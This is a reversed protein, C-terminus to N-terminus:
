WWGRTLWMYSQVEDFLRTSYNRTLAYARQSFRSAPLAGPEVGEHTQVRGALWGTKGTRPGDFVLTVDEISSWVRQLGVRCLEVGM